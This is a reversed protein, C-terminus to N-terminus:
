TFEHNVLPYVDFAMEDYPHVARVAEIVREAIRRPCIAEIREEEVQEFAGKAGHFPHSGQGPRFRGIGRVSFSCFDYNGIRGAGTEGLVRRIEDAHEVPVYIAIKVLEEM